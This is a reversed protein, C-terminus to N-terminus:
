RDSPSGLGAHDPHRRSDADYQLPGKSLPCVLLELLKPDIAAPRKGVDGGNM